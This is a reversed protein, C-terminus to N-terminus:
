YMRKTYSEDLLDQMAGVTGDGVGGRTHDRLIQAVSALSSRDPWGTPNWLSSRKAAKACHMYAEEIEIGIGLQPVKDKVMAQSLVAPDQVVCAKGNVRLTEELGPIIFMLGIYPHEIINLLTDAQRNGIVEPILLHRDDLIKIFGAPGGRPSSDCRGSADCTALLVYPTLSVYTKCHHDLRKLVKEITVKFPPPLITRLRELTTIPEGFMSSATEAPAAITADALTNV